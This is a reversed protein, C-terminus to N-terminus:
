TDICPLSAGSASRKTIQSKKTINYGAVSRDKFTGELQDTTCFEDERKQDVLGTEKTPIALVAPSTCALLIKTILILHFIKM